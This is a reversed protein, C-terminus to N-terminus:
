DLFLSLCAIFVGMILLLSVSALFFRQSVQLSDAKRNSEDINRAYAVFLDAIHMKKYQVTDSEQGELLTLPDPYATIGVRLVILSYVIAVLFLGALVVFLSVLVFQSWAPLMPPFRLLLGAVAAFTAAAVGAASVLLSAKREIENNRDLEHQFFARVFALSFDVHDAEVSQLQALVVESKQPLKPYECVETM